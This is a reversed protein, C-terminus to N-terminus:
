KRELTQSRAIGQMRHIVPRLFPDPKSWLEVVAQAWRAAAASDGAAMALDSRLVMSRVLMGVGVPDALGQLSVQNLVALTPELRDVALATDGISVFLRAEPYLVEFGLNAPQMWNRGKLADGLIRRVLDIDNARHAAIAELLYDGLNALEPLSRFPFEPYTLVAPRGLLELRHQQKLNESDTGAAISHALRQEVAALSDPPGGSAAFVLLALDDGAAQAPVNRAVGRRPLRALGSALTVQGTLMALTALDSPDAGSSPTSRRLLSDALASARRIESPAPANALVLMLAESVGLRTQDAVSNAMLRAARVTDVATPSGNLWLAIGLAERAEFDQPSASVWESSLDKFALRQRRVAELTTSAAVERRSSSFDNARYPIFALTDGQWSPFAAFLGTDPALGYGQRAQNTSTWLLWLRQRLGVARYDRYIAPRLVFAKRWAQIAAHYSSRFRWGSPSSSDRIVGRDLGMCIAAGYWIAFEGHWQTALTLLQTCARELEGRGEMGLVEAIAADRPSLRARAELARGAYHRWTPAPMDQWVRVQALWLSGQTFDPDRAVARAFSSDAAELDWAAVAEQGDVFAELAPAARTALRGQASDIPVRGRFLLSDALISLLSDRAQTPRLWLDKAFLASGDATRYLVARLQVSDGMAIALGRVFHGAGLKRAIRRATTGDIREAGERDLADSILLRDVVSVGTWRALGDQIGLAPDSQATSGEFPFVVYREPNLRVRPGATTVWQGATRALLVVALGIGLGVAATRSRTRFRHVAPEDLFQRATPFRDTPSKALARVLAQELWVPADPRLTRLLPPEEAYHRGRMGDPTTASFPTTGTLAEYLVCALSYIDSRGDLPGGAAQEPSMYPPTGMVLGTGTSDSADPAIARAIGFDAVLAHASSLLINSPKIDRHVIGQQHAYDLASAVERGIRLTEDISLRHNHELRDKLTGSEVYPIVYYLRGAAEGSDHLPLIHPHNLKAAFSIERLFRDPGLLASLGPKIIKIAVPRRHKLDEARYVTAMGGQGLLRPLGDPTLEIRYRDALAEAVGDLPDVVPVGNFRLHAGKIHGFCIARGPPASSGHTSWIDHIALSARGDPFPGQLPIGDVRRQAQTPM